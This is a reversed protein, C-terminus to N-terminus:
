IVKVSQKTVWGMWGGNLSTVHYPHSRNDTKVFNLKGYYNKLTKGPGKGFSDRHLRGNVIVECGVTVKKETSPPRSQNNDKNPVDNSITVPTVKLQKYESFSISYDIDETGAIHKYEFDDISVMLNINLDSIVLRIPSKNTRIKDIFDIYFKPPQFENKTLIAPHYNDFPFFGEFEINSLKKDKIINVEGLKVVETKDNNGEISINIEEPNIPFQIVEKDYEIFIGIGM